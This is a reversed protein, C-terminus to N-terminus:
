PTIAEVVADAVEARVRIIADNERTPHVRNTLLLVFLRRERDIWLSTGTFGTHGISSASMLSGSSSYGPTGPVSSRAVGDRGAVDWGLARTSGPVDSRRAFRDLTARSVFRRHEFVGGNVIMQAFRALDPATGFLGAHPAVGGMAFANEDHVEGEIRRGRWADEETPAARAALPGSPRFTTDGMGLPEFVRDKTFVDIPEGAVRELVEGLVFFGLDSYLSRTGPPYVLDMAQVRELYAERGRLEQYLPGWWELGSSHTLLQEITVQDKAGGRFGPLVTVVPRGPDLRGDDVLMMAMTTTAVVKTLSALDYVTDERVPRADADYSLRGFAQLHALVGDKGVALVAGPFARAAVAREIVADAARLGSSTLGADEPRGRRLTMARRPLLLGHGYPYLGPLTVPLRGAFASEGFVAAVAARQSSEASGYAAVYTPLEPFQRLLYPSGFSVVVPPRGAGALRRLLRAHASSMDATGKSGSVRAFCSALVHTAAAARRLVDAVTEESLEPGLNVTDAPIRRAELEEELIGQISTDRLDSSMVLHLLRLPEEARLPLAGGDNRVLTISAKALDLARAVDEPRAVDRSVAEPDVTRTRHLGLREKTELIRLVSADIAAQPVRGERVARVLSQIAVEPQPPLLILDAGAAVARVAAEGTWAPKVAAMDLGDTVIAGKFGLESRLVQAVKASL